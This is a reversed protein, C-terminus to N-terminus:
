RMIETGRGSTTTKRLVTASECSEILDEEMGEM